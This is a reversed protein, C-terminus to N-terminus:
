ATEQVYNQLARLAEVIQQENAYRNFTVVYNRHMVQMYPSWTQTSSVQTRAVYLMKEIKVNTVRSELWMAYDPRERRLLPMLASWLQGVLNFDRPCDGSLVAGHEWEFAAAAALEALEDLSEDWQGTITVEFVAQDSHFENDYPWEGGSTTAFTLRSLRRDYEILVIHDLRDSLGPITKNAYAEFFATPTRYAMGTEKIKIIELM